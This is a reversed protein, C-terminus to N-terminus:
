RQCCCSAVAWHGQEKIALSLRKVLNPTKPTITVELSHIRRINLCIFFFEEEATWLFSCWPRIFSEYQLTVCSCLGQGLGPIWWLKETLDFSSPILGVM